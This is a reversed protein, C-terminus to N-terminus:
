GVFPKIPLPQGRAEVASEQRGFRDSFHWGRFLPTVQSRISRTRRTKSSRQTRKDFCVVGTALWRRRHDKPSPGPASPRWGITKIEM